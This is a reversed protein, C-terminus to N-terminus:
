LNLHVFNLFFNQLFSYSVNDVVIIRGSCSSTTFYNRQSNIFQILEEIPADISGKRSLDVASLSTQKQRDFQADM